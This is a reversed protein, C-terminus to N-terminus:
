AAKKQGQEFRILVKTYGDIRQDFKDNPTLLKTSTSIIASLVARNQVDM